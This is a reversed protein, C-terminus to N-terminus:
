EDEEVKRKMQEYWGPIPSDRREYVVESHAPLGEIARLTGYVALDGLHPESKGSLFPSGDSPDSSSLGDKELVM